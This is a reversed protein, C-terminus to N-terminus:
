SRRTAGLHEIEFAEMSPLLRRSRRGGSSYAANVQTIQATKSIAATVAVVTKKFVTVAVEDFDEPSGIGSLAMTIDSKIM